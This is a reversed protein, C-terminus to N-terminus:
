LLGRREMEAAYRDLAYAAMEWVERREPRRWPARTMALAGVMDKHAKALEADSRSALYESGTM